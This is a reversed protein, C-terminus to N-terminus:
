RYKDFKCISSPLSSNEFDKNVQATLKKNKGQEEELATAVDYYQRTRERLKDQVADRQREVELIRNM